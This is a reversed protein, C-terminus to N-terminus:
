PVVKLLSKAFAGIKEHIRWLTRRRNEALHPMLGLETLVAPAESVVLGPTKGSYFDCLLGGIAKLSIADSDLRFWCRGEHYEPVLWTRVQCGEVRFTDIRLPDPLMPRRKAADIVAAFRAQADPIARYREILPM